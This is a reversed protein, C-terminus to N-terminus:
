KSLNFTVLQSRKFVSGSQYIITLLFPGDAVVPNYVSISIAPCRRDV